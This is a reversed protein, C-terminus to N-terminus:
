APGPGRGSAPSTALERHTQPVAHSRRAELTATARELRNETDIMSRSTFRDEGGGDNGLAVLDPSSKVSTMVAAFQDKGDSHRHVFMALDRSTFTAQRHTIADLAIGPNAIIKDGNSRAIEIHEGARDADLGQAAM